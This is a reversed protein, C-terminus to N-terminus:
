KASNLRRLLIVANTIMVYSEESSTTIEYDKSLRRYNNQWSFTREVIWRFPLIEWQGPKIKESIDVPLGLEAADKVFTKRYGADACVGKLSPYLAFAKRLAMIGAVTDHINAAHVVVALINGLTDTVIHRKRGKVKKGGDIGREDSASTTKVSQSDILCYTPNPKKGANRRTIATLAFLIKQWIKKLRARRFFSHVTQHPPFDNPLMRWQCGTKLLYLLANVLLRKHYKSRNGPKFFHKVAKWQNDTLDTSYGIGTKMKEKLV